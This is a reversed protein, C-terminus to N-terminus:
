WGKASDLPRGNFDYVIWGYEARVSDQPIDRVRVEIARAGAKRVILHPGITVSELYVQKNGGLRKMADAELAAIKQETISALDAVGFRPGQSNLTFTMSARTVGDASLNFTTPNGGNSPDDITIRGGRDDAVISAIKTNPGFTTGIRAIAGALTAPDTWVVKPRRSEPLIVRQIAGKTDAVVSTEEGGADTIKITWALVAEGPQSSSKEIKIGTIQAQSLNVKALADAELKAVISWDADNVSFPAPAQTQTLRQTIATSDIAPFGSRLGNLDWTFNAVQALGGGLKGLRNDAINTLFGVRQASIEVSTLVPDGGVASRFAAAADVLLQPEKFLNLTQARQTDSLDAGIIDGQANAFVDAHERGSKIHLTWRVDGTTPKPLIFTQRAVEMHAVVARDQIHTREIAAKELKAAASFAVADLDFLNAELDPDLLQLEVPEPGFVWQIPIIGIHNVCRWRNVHTLKNPDQAEVIVVDPEVEIRLIRPRNGIASRIAPIAKSLEAGDDVLSAQASGWSIMFVVGTLTFALRM